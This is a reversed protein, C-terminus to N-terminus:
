IIWRNEKGHTWTKVCVPPLDAAKQGDDGAYTHAFIMKAKTDFMCVVNQESTKHRVMTNLIASPRFAVAIKVAIM